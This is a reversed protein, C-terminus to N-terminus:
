QVLFSLLADAIGLGTQPFEPEDCYIQLIELATLLDTKSLASNNEALREALEEVNDFFFVIRGQSNEIADIENGLRLAYKMMLEKEEPSFSVDMIDATDLEAHQIDQFSFSKLRERADSYKVTFMGGACDFHTAVLATAKDMFDKHVYVHVLNNADQGGLPSMTVNADMFYPVNEDAFMARILGSANKAFAGELKVFDDRKFHQVEVNGAMGEDGILSQKAFADIDAQGLKRRAIEQELIAVAQPTYENRQHVYQELLM